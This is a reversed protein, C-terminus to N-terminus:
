KWQIEEGEALVKKINIDDDFIVLDAIFGKELSGRGSLGMVRAPTKTMMKISDCLPIKAKHYVTKLLRDSTAISGAFSSMDPLYAVDDKKIICELGDRKSGLIAKEMDTGAARMSDTILCIRDPGKVKYVLQLLEVPLHSGDAILEVTIEDELLSAEVAGGRRYLNRRVVGNMSSYLHTAVNCGLPLVEKIDDYLADTHAFSAVLGREKLYICLEKAGSLEPAFSIRKLTGKETEYFESYEEEKPTRIYEPNQAGSMSPACYPGELHAGAIHPFGKKNEKMAEAVNKIFLLIEERSGSVSTPYISTTGHKAHTYAANLVAEKTGDSFDDGGAGHSHIEVFGPSVYDGEADIEIDFPLNEESIEKIKGDEIYLNKGKILEDTVLIANSIKTIM